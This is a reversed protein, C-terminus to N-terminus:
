LDILLCMLFLQPLGVYGAGPTIAVLGAFAGTCFGVGTWKQGSWQEFLTYAVGGTCAAINTAVFTSTARMNAKLESGANFGFWGFWVLLCGLYALPINHSGLRSEIVRPGASHRRHARPNTPHGNDQGNLSLTEPSNMRVYKLMLTYALSAAGSCIDVRLPRTLVKVGM